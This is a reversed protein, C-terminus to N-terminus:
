QPKKAEELAKQADALAKQADALAKDADAKGASAQKAAAEAADKAATAQKLSAEVADKDAALKKATAEATEKAGTAQKLADGMKVLEAGRDTATKQAAALDKKAADLQTYMYGGGAGAGILLGVVLMVVAKM